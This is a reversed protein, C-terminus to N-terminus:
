PSPTLGEWELKIGQYVKDAREDKDDCSFYAINLAAYLGPFSEIEKMQEIAQDVSLCRGEVISQATQSLVGSLPHNVKQKWFSLIKCVKSVSIKANRPARCIEELLAFQANPSFNLSDVILKEWQGRDAYPFNCDISSLFEEESKGSM